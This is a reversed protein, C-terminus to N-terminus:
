LGKEKDTYLLNSIQFIVCYDKYERYDCFFTQRRNNCQKDLIEYYKQAVTRTISYTM